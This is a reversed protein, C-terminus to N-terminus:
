FQVQIPWLNQKGAHLNYTTMSIREAHNSSQAALQERSEFEKNFTQGSLLKLDQSIWKGNEPWGRMIWLSMLAAFM